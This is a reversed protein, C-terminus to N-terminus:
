AAGVRIGLERCIADLRELPSMQPPAIYFDCLSSNKGIPHSGEGEYHHCRCGRTCRIELAIPFRKGPEHHRRCRM